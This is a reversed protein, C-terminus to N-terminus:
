IEENIIIKDDSLFKEINLVISRDKTVGILYEKETPTLTPMTPRLQDVLVTINGTVEDVLLGVEVDQYKVRIVRNLNTLGKEPLSLFTKLNIVSLIRGRINIIGLIFPPVGPLPTLERLPIVEQVFKSDIIYHEETLLFGLGDMEAGNDIEVIPMRALLVARERLIKEKEDMDTLHIVENQSEEPKTDIQKGM